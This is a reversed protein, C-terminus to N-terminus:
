VERIYELDFTEIQKTTWLHKQSENLRLLVQLFTVFWLARETLSNTSARTTLCDM